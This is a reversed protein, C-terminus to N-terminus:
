AKPEKMSAQANDQKRLQELLDQFRSPVPESLADDYVRKLNEQIQHQIKDKSSDKAMNGYM